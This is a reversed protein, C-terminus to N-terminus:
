CRHTDISGHPVRRALGTTGKPLSATSTAAFAALVGSMHTDVSFGTKKAASMQTLSVAQTESGKAGGLSSVVTSWELKSGQLKDLPARSNDNSLEDLDVDEASPDETSGSLSFSTDGEM